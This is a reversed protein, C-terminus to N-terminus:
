LCGGVVGWSGRRYRLPILAVPVALGDEGAHDVDALDVALPALAEADVHLDPIAAAPEEAGGVLERQLDGPGSVVHIGFVDLVAAPQIHGAEHHGLRAVVPPVQVDRPNHRQRLFSAVIAAGISSGSCRSSWSGAGCREWERM